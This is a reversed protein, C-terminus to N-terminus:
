EEILSKLLKEKPLRMRVALPAALHRRLTAADKTPAFADRYIELISVSDEM